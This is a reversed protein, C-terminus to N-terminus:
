KATKSMIEPMSDTLKEVIGMKDFFASIAKENDAEVEVTPRFGETDEVFIKMGDLFFEWGHKFYQFGKRLLPFEKTIFNLAESERDFEKKLVIRDTKHHGKWECKKHVVVIDKTPWNKTKYIKMRVYEKKLDYKGTKPVFIVDMCSYSGKFVAGLDKVKKIAGDINRVVAREEIM